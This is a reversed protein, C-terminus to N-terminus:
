LVTEVVKEAERTRMDGSVLKPLLLDRTQALSTNEKTNSVVRDHLPRAVYEYATLIEESPVTVPIPRFVRKSIEAFTSGGSIGKIHDLNEYCWHLVFINPLRKKCVMAIFGQNVAIPMEAIALYGIPARSSLLVTGAPLLGSSIRKVGADTIKRGTELLVPSGLRSLDKPTAWNYIGGIWYIPEKTNPTGGGVADVEDGIRSVEWGEPIEGIESDVLCDPFLDALPKPLCPDRGEMKARVPDFDVFWSKFLARAMAELTENMRRNLEIKDDLTGLIHAIARQEALRPQAAEINALDRKTVHGLGTTQKNRAIGVFNPKLYRLLYYFFTTDVDDIPAVRFVHQNLWGEQGRWWFADISTEPQGSWSFLLDGDRIRVSDNFTQQTFKTQCSIGGKIESIKIVPKGSPSFQIDRFALGNVWDAMSYLPKREWHPPFHPQYLWNKEEYKETAGNSLVVHNREIERHFREPLRAWDRAEVLFPVTSERLAGEFDGLQGIPIENLSPGRLVLDLDSGDHSKESVRSGYAWVEVDPLHERLLAELVRRHKPQLHLRDAM